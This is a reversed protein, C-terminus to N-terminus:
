AEIQRIHVEGRLLAWLDVAIDAAELDYRYSETYGALGKFHLGGAISGSLSDVQLGQAEMRQRISSLPMSTYLLVACLGLSLISPAVIAAVTKIWSSSESEDEISVVQTKALYDHLARKESNFFPLLYGIGLLLISLLKGVFERMFVNFYTLEIDTSIIQLGFIKKGFTQGSKKVPYIYYGIFIFIQALALVSALTPPQFSRALVKQSIGTLLVFVISDLSAALFQRYFKAPQM